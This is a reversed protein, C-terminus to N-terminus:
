ETKKENFSCLMMHEDLIQELKKGIKARCKTCMHYRADELDKRKSPRGNLLEIKIVYENNKIEWRNMENGCYPCFKKEIGTLSKKIVPKVSKM